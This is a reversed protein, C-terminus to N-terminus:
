SKSLVDGVFPLSYPRFPEITGSEESYLLARHMGLKSAATSDILNSSDNNGMQMLVRLDFERLGQRDISRNLNMLTDTAVVLHIGLAPGEKLLEAFIESATKQKEEDSMSFGFDDENRRLDRFRHLGNVIFFQTAKGEAGENIRTQLSRYLAHMTQEVERHGILHTDCTCHDLTAPITSAFTADSHTGDLVFLQLSENPYQADLSLITSTVLSTTTEEQQGIILLNNATARRFIAATDEKIAMAAGLWASASIPLDTPPNQLLKQYSRNDELSVPTNGEYVVMERPEGKYLEKVKSLEAERITEDLWVVQFPSNGEIKGASDNYIAEGPRSLLRAAANDESLIIYSDAESCQLAVRVAMQGMTSRGLTYAGDLTQSGLIAHIGFARGQRVIRDLLLSAEQSIKDDDVFFEQFEDVILLIRPMPEDSVERFGAIDQVGLKRYLEGRQKLELDLKHLVSIGFERDSEVAVVRAHPLQHTAYTKFEVGKKFDVLYFEVEDPNHWLALNTILVHLLTSKGSGTKGAILAHQATGRGLVLNQLKTAGARGLPVTLKNSTSKSWYEDGKPTIVNFPVEVRHTTEALEGVKKVVRTTTEDNPPNSTVLPLGQLEKEDIRLEGEIEKLRMSIRNLTDEDIGQPLSQGTDRHMLVHVGCKAGSTIISSLRKVANDSFNAPFDAIVLFRYPEAIEGAQENYDDISEFENRLYKQIVTEMHQTLNMLQQEIHRTETWARDLLQSEEYDALHLVGAFTEGLGVPDILTFKAKGAPVATLVSVTTNQIISIAEARAKGSSTVLLSADRPLTVCVPFQETTPEPLQLSDSVPLAGGITTLDVSCNGIHIRDLPTTCPIWSTWHADEWAPFLESTTKRQNSLETTFSSFASDWRNSLTSLVSKKKASLAEKQANWTEDITKITARKEQEVEEIDRDFSEQVDQADQELKTNLTAAVTEFRKEEKGIDKKYLRQIERLRPGYQEEANALEQQRTEKLNKEEKERRRDAKHIEYERVRRASSVCQRFEQMKMQVSNRGTTYIMFLGFISILAALVPAGILYKTELNTDVLWAPVGILATVGLTILLPRIGVFLIARGDHKIADLAQSAGEVYQGMEKKRSDDRVDFESDDHQRLHALMRPAEECLLDLKELDKNLKEEISEVRERPKQISAEYVSEALWQAENLKAETVERLEEAEDAIESLRREHREKLIQPELERRKEVERRDKEFIQDAAIRKSEALVACHELAAERQSRNDKEQQSIEELLAAEEQFTETILKRITAIQKCQTLLLPSM